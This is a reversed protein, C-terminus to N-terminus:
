VTGVDHTWISGYKKCLYAKKIYFTHTLFWGPHLSQTTWLSTSCFNLLYVASKRNVQPLKNFILTPSYQTTFVALFVAPKCRANLTHLVMFLAPIHSIFLAPKHTVDLVFSLHTHCWSCLQYTHCWSCPQYTHCWSCPQYTHCFCWSSCVKEQGEDTFLSGVYPQEGLLGLEFCLLFAFAWIVWMWTCFQVFTDFVYWGYLM